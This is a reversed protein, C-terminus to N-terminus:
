RKIPMIIYLYNSNEEKPRLLCPNEGSILELVVKEQEIANLGDLLYKYNLVIENEEGELYVKLSATTEGFQSNASNLVLEGEENNNEKPKLKFNIDYIGQKSFLSATRVVRILEAKDFTARTKWAGPIIQKYDPYQGEVIRSILEVGNISFMVQNETLCIKLINEEETDGSDKFVSLIRLVEQMTKFPIIVGREGEEGSRFEISKEALRYSDTAAMTMQKKEGDFKLFVGSIEPRIDNTSVAFLVQNVSNRFKEIEVSYTSCNSVEPILPFETPLVGRLKTEFSGCKVEINQDDLSIDVKERPLSNIYDTFLKAPLAISGEEEIKGRIISRVGIELNTALFIITGNEVKLLVNNLIPLNINKSAIHSSIQLGRNLNEQTCSIKM